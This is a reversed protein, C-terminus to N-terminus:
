KLKTEVTAMLHVEDVQGRQPAAELLQAEAAPRVLEFRQELFTKAVLRM